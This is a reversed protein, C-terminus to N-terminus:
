TNTQRRNSRIRRFVVVAIVILVIWRFTKWFRTGRSPSENKHDSPSLRPENPDFAQESGVAQMEFATLVSTATYGPIFEKGLFKLPHKHYVEKVLGNVSAHYWRQREETSRVKAIKINLTVTATMTYYQCDTFSGAPTEITEDPLRQITITTPLTVDSANMRLVTEITTEAGVDLQPVQYPSPPDYILRAVEGKDNEIDFGVLMREDNVFLRGVVNPDNTYREQIVWRKAGDEEFTSIVHLIKQGDIANPEVSGPRPGQHEYVWRQGVEFPGSGTNAGAMACLLGILCVAANLYSKIPDSSM